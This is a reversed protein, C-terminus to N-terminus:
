WICLNMLFSAPFADRLAEAAYTGLGAGTGGAMSQLLLFGGLYDAEEAQVCGCQRLNNPQVIEDLTCAFWDRQYLIACAHLTNLGTSCTRRPAFSSVTMSALANQTVERRVLECIADAHKPGYLNHGRAWNNGSGSQEAYSCRPAYCWDSPSSNATSIATNVVKPEMDVLVARAYRRCLLVTLVM